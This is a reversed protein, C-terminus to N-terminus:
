NAVAAVPFNAVLTGRCDHAQVAGMEADFTAWPFTSAATEPSMGDIIATELVDLNASSLALEEQQEQEQEQEHVGCEDHLGPCQSYAVRCSNVYTGGTLEGDEGIEPMIDKHSEGDMCDECDWCNVAFSVDSVDVDALDAREFSETPTVAGIMFLAMSVSFLRIMMM